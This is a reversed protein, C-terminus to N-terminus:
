PGGCRADALLSVFSIYDDPLRKREEQEEILHYAIESDRKCDHIVKTVYMSELAPKCAKMLMEGGQIADVLYIADPFALEMICLRGYCCLDVGECDFGIVLQRDSSPELFEAPLQTACSVIHIPVSSLQAGDEVPKEGPDPPLPVQTQAPPPPPPAFSGLKRERERAFSILDRAEFHSILQHCRLKSSRTRQFKDFHRNGM